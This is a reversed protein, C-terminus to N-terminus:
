ACSAVACCWVFRWPTMVSVARSEAVSIRPEAIRSASRRVSFQRLDYTAEMEPLRQTGMFRLAGHLRHRM